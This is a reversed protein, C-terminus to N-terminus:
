HRPKFLAAGMRVLYESPKYGIEWPIHGILIKQMLKTPKGNADFLVLVDNSGIGTGRLWSSVYNSPCNCANCQGQLPSGDVPKKCLPGQFTSLPRSGDKCTRGWKLTGGREMRTSRSGQTDCWPAYRESLQQATRLKLVKYSYEFWKFSAAIGWKPHSFVAHGYNNGHVGDHAGNIGSVNPTGRYPRGVNHKLCGYNNMKLCSTAKDLNPSFARDKVRNWLYEGAYVRWNEGEAPRKIFDRKIAIPGEVQSETNNTSKNYGCSSLFLSLFILVSFKFENM